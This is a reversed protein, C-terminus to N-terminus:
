AEVVGDAFRPVLWRTGAAAAGALRAASATWPGLPSAVVDIAVGQLADGAGTLTATATCGEPLTPDAALDITHSAQPGLTFPAGTLRFGACPGVVGVYTPRVGIPQAATNVVVLRSDRRAGSIAGPVAVGRQVRPAFLASSADSTRQGAVDYVGFASTRAEVRVQAALLRDSTIGVSGGFGALGGSPTPDPFAVALSSRPAVNVTRRGVSAGNGDRLEVAAHVIFTEPNHLFLASTEGARDIPAFPVVLDFGEIAPEALVRGGGDWATRAAAGVYGGGAVVAAFAGPPVDSLEALPFAIPAMPDRNSALRTAGVRAGAAAYLDIALTAPNIGVNAVLLTSNAGGATGRGPLFPPLTPTPTPTPTPPPPPTVNALASRLVLPLLKPFFFGEVDRENHLVSAPWLAADGGTVRESRVFAVITTDSTVIAGGATTRLAAPITDSRLRWVRWPEVLRRCADGCDVRAGDPRALDIRVSATQSDINMIFLDSSLANNDGDDAFWPVVLAGGPSAGDALTLADTAAALTRSGRSQREFLTAVVPQSAMVLARAICGAPLGSPGTVLGTADGQDFLAMSGGALTAAEHAFSRGTCTGGVGVYSVHVEAAAPRTNVVALQTADPGLSPDDSLAAHALPVFLETSASSAPVGAFDAVGEAGDIDIMAHVATLHDSTIRLAGLFGGDANPRLTVFAPDSGLDITTSGGAPITYDAVVDPVSRGLALAAVHFTGSVQESPPGIQGNQITVVSTAGHYAAVALPVWVDATDAGDVGYSEGGPADIAWGGTAPWAHRTRVTAAGTGVRGAFVGRGAANPASLVANAWGDDPVDFPVSPEDVITGQRRLTLSASAGTTLGLADIIALTTQGNADIGAAGARAPGPAPRAGVIGVACVLAVALAAVPNARRRRPPTRASFRSM